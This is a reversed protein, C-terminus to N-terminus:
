VVELSKMRIRVFRKGYREHIYRDNVRTWDDLEVDATTQNINVVTGTRGTIYKPTLNTKTRVRGGVTITRPGTVPVDEVEVGTGPYRKAYETELRARLETLQIRSLNSIDKPDDIDIIHM